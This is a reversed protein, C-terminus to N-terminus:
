KLMKSATKDAWKRISKTEKETLKKDPFRELFKAPPMEGKEMVEVVEDMVAAVSKKDMTSLNAWILKEKAKENKSDASHCGLCKADIIPKVKADIVFGNETQPDQSEGPGANWLGLTLLFIFTPKLLLM